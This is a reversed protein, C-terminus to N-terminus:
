LAFHLSTRVRPNLTPRWQVTIAYLLVLLPFPKSRHHYDLCSTVHHQKVLVRLVGMKKHTFVASPRFASHYSMTHRLVPDLRMLANSVRCTQSDTATPRHHLVTSIENGRCVTDHGTLICVSESFEIPINRYYGEVSLTAVFGVEEMRKGRCHAQPEIAKGKGRKQKEKEGKGNGAPRISAATGKGVHTHGMPCPENDFGDHTGIRREEHKGRECGSNLVKSDGQVPDGDREKNKREGM